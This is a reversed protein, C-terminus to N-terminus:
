ITERFTGIFTNLYQDYNELLYLERTMKIETDSIIYDIKVKNLFNKMKINTIFKIEEVISYQTVTSNLMDEGRSMLGKFLTFNQYINKKIVKQYMGSNVKTIGGEKENFNKYKQFHKKNSNDKM